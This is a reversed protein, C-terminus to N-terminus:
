LSAYLVSLVWIDRDEVDSMPLCEPAQFMAPFHNVILSFNHGKLHQM